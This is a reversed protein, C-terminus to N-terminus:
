SIWIRVDSTRAWRGDVGRVLRVIRGEGAVNDRAIGVYIYATDAVIVPQSILAFTPTAPYAARFADWRTAPPKFFAFLTTDAITHWGLSDALCPPVPARRTNTPILLPTAVRALATDGVAKTTHAFFAFSPIGMATKDNLLTTGAAAGVTSLAEVYLECGQARLPSVALTAAVVAGLAAVRASSMREGTM